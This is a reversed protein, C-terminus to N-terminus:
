VKWVTNGVVTLSTLRMLVPLLVDLAAAGMGHLAVSSWILRALLPQMRVWQGKFLSANELSMMQLKTVHMLAPVLKTASADNRGNGRSKLAPLTSALASAVAAAVHMTALYCAPVPLRGSCTHGLMLLLM